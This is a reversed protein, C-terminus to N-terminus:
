SNNEIFFRVIRALANGNSNENKEGEFSGIEKSIKLAEKLESAQEDHLIFTINQFEPKDKNELSPMVTENYPIIEDENKKFDVDLEIDKLLSELEDTRIGLSAMNFDKLELTKIDFKLLDQNYELSSTKNDAIRAAKVQYEDLHDATYVPVKKLRLKLSAAHRCHGIIIINNKDVVIPQTWGYEQISSAVRLIQEDSHIKHNNIYPILNEPSEYRIKIEKM